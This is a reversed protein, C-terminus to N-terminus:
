FDNTGDPERPPVTMNEHRKKSAEIYVARRTLNISGLPRHPELCHWPSFSIREAFKNRTETAFIQVPVTLRAVKHLETKWPEVADDVNAGEPKFQVHFDFVAERALLHAAMADKLFDAQGRRPDGEALVFPQETEKPDVPVAVYKVVQDAGLAYPTQSFYRTSLPNDHMKFSASLLPFDRQLSRQPTDLFRLYEGLDRTFFV